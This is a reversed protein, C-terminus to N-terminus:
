AHYEPKEGPLPESLEQSEVGAYFIVLEAGQESTYGRHASNVTENIAEGANVRYTAGTNMDEITLQGSLVYATNPMAHTHWPLESDPPLSMRMVSILPKGKSYAEYPQKNWATGSQLILKHEIKDSGKNPTLEPNAM